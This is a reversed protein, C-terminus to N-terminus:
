EYFGRHVENGRATEVVLTYYGSAQDAAMTIHIENDATADYRSTAIQRGLVDYITCARIGDHSSITLQDGNRRIDSRATSQQQVLTFSREEQPFGEPCEKIHIPSVDQFAIACQTGSEYSNCATTHLAYLDFMTSNPYFLGDENSIVSTGLEGGWHNYHADLLLECADDLSCTTDMVGAIVYNQYGSFDNYGRMLQLDTVEDCTVCVPVDHFFNYGAHNFSSMNVSGQHKYVGEIDHFQNCRLNLTGGAKEIAHWNGDSFTCEEVFANVSSNDYIYADNLFVSRKVSFDAIATESQIMANEFACDNVM